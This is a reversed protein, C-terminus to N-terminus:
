DTVAFRGVDFVVVSVQRGGLRAVAIGEPKLRRPYVSVPTIDERSEGGRWEVVRFDLGKRGPGPGTIVKFGGTRADHELSRIGAGDLPLHLARGGDLRLSERTFRGDALRVPVVLAQGDVVPDRLGLLLRQRGPDWAIAEINLATGGPRSATGALEPVHAALWAKLGTIREVRDIRSTSPDFAFRVLGDGSAGRKKSQSGVVYFLTGDTTIGELDTVEAGLAVARARGRQGGDADLRMWFVQGTAGDDVFLLGDSGPVHVVGSAEFHGGEIRRVPGADDAALRVVQYAAVAMTLLLGAISFCQRRNHTSM